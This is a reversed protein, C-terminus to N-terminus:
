AAMKPTPGVYISQPRVLKGGALQERAHAIWGAVRGMAFVCTFTTHPFALSELLLATYFEVNTDLARNLVRRLAEPILHQVGGALRDGVRHAVAVRHEQRVPIVRHRRRWAIAHAVQPRHRALLAPQREM